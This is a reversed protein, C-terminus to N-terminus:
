PTVGRTRDYMRGLDERILSLVYPLAYNQQGSDLEARMSAAGTRRAAWGTRRQLALLVRMRWLKRRHEPVMIWLCWLCLALSILAEIMKVRALRDEDSTM